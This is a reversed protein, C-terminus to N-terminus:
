LAVFRRHIVHSHDAGLVHVNYSFPESVTPPEFPVDLALEFQFATSAAASVLSRGFQAVFPRHM